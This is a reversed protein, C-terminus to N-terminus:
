VVYSTLINPSWVQVGFPPRYRRAFTERYLLEVRSPGVTLANQVASKLYESGVLYKIKDIRGKGKDLPIPPEGLVDRFAVGALRYSAGSAQGSDSVVSSDGGIHLSSSRSPGM